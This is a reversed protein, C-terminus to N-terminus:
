LKGRILSKTEMYENQLSELGGLERGVGSMKMGGFPVCDFSYGFAENVWITGAKVQSCFREIFKEDTIADQLLIISIIEV